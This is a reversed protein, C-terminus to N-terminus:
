AAQEESRAGGAGGGGGREALFPLALLARFHDDTLALKRLRRRARSFAQRVADPRRATLVGVTHSPSPDGAAQQQLYLLLLEADATSVVAELADALNRLVPHRDDRILQDLVRVAPRDDPAVARATAGEVTTDALEGHPLPRTIPGIHHRLLALLRDRGYVWPLAGGDPRWWRAITGIVECADFTLGDFEDDAIAPLQHQRALALLARRLEAGFESYLAVEMAPDGPLEAMIAALVARREPDLSPIDTRM